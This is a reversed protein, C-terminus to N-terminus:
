DSFSDRTSKLFQEAEFKTMDLIYALTDMGTERAEKAM